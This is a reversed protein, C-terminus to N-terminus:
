SGALIYAPMLHIYIKTPEIAKGVQMIFGSSPATQVLDGSSGLFLPGLTWSMSSDEYYGEALIKVSGASPLGHLTMGIVMQSQDLESYDALEYGDATRAIMKQGSVSSAYDISFELSDSDSPGSGGSLNPVRRHFNGNNFM